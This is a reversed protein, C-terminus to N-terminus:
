KEGEEMFRWGSVDFMDNKMSIWTEQPYQTRKRQQEVNFYITAAVHQEPSEEKEHSDIPNGTFPNVPNEILGAFALTPTDANTMFRTDTTLETSGFDKVMLLPNYSLIDGPNGWGYNKEGFQLGFLDLAFGHDAVLIIRTNDYVGQERLYDFWKGMQILAAMTSHYHVMQKVTELRLENGAADRRVTHERDYETNDIVFEPTYDPMATLAAGHPTENGLMIFSGKEEKEVTTMEPLQRLVEYSKLFDTDLGRATSVSTVVQSGVRYFDGNSDNYQGNSYLVGHLLVPAARMVGYCFFNRQRIREANEWVNGISPEVNGQTNYAKIGPYKDYISLDYISSYGAYSPDCVTVDYGANLFVVPMVSLAENHKDMLLVDDRKDMNEPTYDYGGFLPPAGWGTFHSYSLTNPYYTFGAFQEKLEPREELIFPLYAGIARDLMFVAVNKKERSLPLEAQNTQKDQNMSKMSEDVVSQTNFMNMVSMVLIAACLGMTLAQTIFADKKWILIVIAAAAICVAANLLSLTLPNAVTQEYQLASSMTGYRTGFFFGNVAAILALCAAGCSLIKRTRSAAFFWVAPAWLLFCGAATAFSSVLYVLPTQYHNIDIFDLPSSLIVMGPLYLGTLVALLACGAFFTNRENKTVNTIRSGTKKVRRLFVMLVLATGHAALWYLAMGSPARFLLIGYVAALGASFIIKEPKRVRLLLYSSLATLIATGIALITNPEALDPLLPFRSGKLPQLDDLFLRAAALLLIVPIMALLGAPLGKKEQAKRTAARLFFYLPIGSLIAIAFLGAKVMATKHFVVAFPCDLFLIAPELILQRIITLLSM